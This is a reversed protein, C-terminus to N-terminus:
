AIKEEITGQQVTNSKQAQLADLTIKARDKIAEFVPFKEACLICVELEKIALDLQGTEIYCDSIHYHPLPDRPDLINCITYCTAANFYDKRMHYCAALGMMFRSEIPNLMVLLRFIQSAQDYKGTNYLRYAFNYMSEVMEDSLGMADKPLMGKEYVDTVLKEIAQKMEESAQIGLNDITEKAVEKSTKM